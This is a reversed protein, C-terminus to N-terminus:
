QEGLDLIKYSGNPLKPYAITFGARVWYPPEDIENTFQYVSGVLISKVVMGDAPAIDNAFYIKGLELPKTHTYVVKSELPGCGDVVQLTAYTNLCFESVFVRNTGNTIWLGSDSSRVELM